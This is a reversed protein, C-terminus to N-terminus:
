ARPRRPNVMSAAQAILARQKENAPKDAGTFWDMIAAVLDPRQEHVAAHWAQYAEHTAKGKENLQSTLKFYHFKNDEYWEESVPECDVPQAFVVGEADCLGLLATSLVQVTKLLPATRLVVCDQFQPLWLLLELFPRLTGPGGKAPLWKDAKVDKPAFQFNEAGKMLAAALEADAAPIACDIPPRVGETKDDFLCPWAIACMRYAMLQGHLTQRGQPLQCAVEKDTASSPVIMGNANGGKQILTPILDAFTGADAASNAAIALVSKVPVSLALASVKTATVAPVSPAAAVPAAAVPAAAVPAAAVPAAAVPAVRAFRVAPAPAAAPAAAQVPTSPAAAPAAAGLKRLKDFAM